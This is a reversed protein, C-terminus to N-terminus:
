KKGTTFVLAFYYCTFFALCYGFLTWCDHSVNGNEMNYYVLIDHGTQVYM